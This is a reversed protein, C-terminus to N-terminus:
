LLGTEREPKFGCQELRHRSCAKSLHESLAPHFRREAGTAQLEKPETNALIKRFSEAARATQALRWEFAGHNWYDFANQSIARFVQLKCWTDIARLTCSYCGVPIRTRINAEFM